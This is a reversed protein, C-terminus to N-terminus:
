KMSEHKVSHDTESYREAKRAESKVDGTAIRLIRLKGGRTLRTQISLAFQRLGGGCSQQKGKLGSHIWIGPSSLHCM